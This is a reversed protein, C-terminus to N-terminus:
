NEINYFKASIKVTKKGFLKKLLAKKEDMKKPNLSNFQWTLEKCDQREETLSTEKTANYLMGALMKEKELMQGGSPDGM